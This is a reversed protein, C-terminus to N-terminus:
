ARPSSSGFTLYAKQGASRRFAAEAAKKIQEPMDVGQQMAADTYYPKM